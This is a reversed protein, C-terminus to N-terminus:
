ERGRRPGHIQMQVRQRIESITEALDTGRSEGPLLPINEPLCRGRQADVHEACNQAIELLILLARVDPTNLMDLDALTGNRQQEYRTATAYIGAATYTENRHSACLAQAESLVADADGKGGTLLYRAELILDHLREARQSWAAAQGPTIGTGDASCDGSSRDEAKM